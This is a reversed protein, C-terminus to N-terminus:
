KTGEVTGSASQGETTNKSSDTLEITFTKNILEMKSTIRQKLKNYESIAKVKANIDAQQSVAFLLQKDVFNDNFGADDLENNICSFVNPNTLLNAANVKATNYQKIDTLDYGYVEAYSKVGNGFFDESVYLKCFLRQKENLGDEGKM